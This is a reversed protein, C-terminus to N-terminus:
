HSFLKQPLWLVSEHLDLAAGKRVHATQFPKTYDPKLPFPSGLSNSFRSDCLPYVPDVTHTKSSDKKLDSTAKFRVFFFGFPMGPYDHREECSDLGCVGTCLFVFSGRVGVVRRIAPFLPPPYFDYRKFVDIQTSIFCLLRSSSLRRWSIVSVFPFFFVAAVRVGSGGFGTRRELKPLIPPCKSIEPRV